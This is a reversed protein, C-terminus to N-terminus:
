LKGAAEALQRISASIKTYNQLGIVPKDRVNSMCFLSNWISKLFPRVKKCNKHMSYQFVTAPFKTTSTRAKQESVM